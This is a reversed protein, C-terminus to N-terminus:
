RKSCLDIALQDMLLEPPIKSRRLDDDVGAIRILADRLQSVSRVALQRKVKWAVAKNVGVALLANEPDTGQDVAERAALLSRFHRTVFWLTRVPQTGAEDLRALALLADKLHTAGLAETLDFVTSLKLDAVAEEADSLRIGGRDGVYHSLKQLENHLKGLDNGVMDCLLHVADGDIRKGLRGAEATVWGRLEREWLPKSEVAMGHKKVAKFLKRRRDVNVATIVLVTTPIEAKVVAALSDQVAASNRKDGEDIREVVVLRRPGMMPLTRVAETVQDPKTRAAVLVDRNFASGKAGGLVAKEIRKRLESVLYSEKGFLLYVPRFNGSGLDRDLQAVAAQPDAGRAM